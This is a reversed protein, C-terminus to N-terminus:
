TCVLSWIEWTKTNCSFFAIMMFLVIAYKKMSFTTSNQREKLIAKGHMKKCVLATAEYIYRYSSMNYPVVNDEYRVIIHHWIFITIMVCFARRLFVIFHMKCPMTVWFVEIVFFSHTMHVITKLHTKCILKWITSYGFLLIFLQVSWLAHLQWSVYIHM